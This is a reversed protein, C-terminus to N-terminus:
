AIGHDRVVFKDHFINKNTDAKMQVNQTNQFEEFTALNDSGPKLNPKKEVILRVKVGRSAARKIPDKIPNKQSIRGARLEQVAMDLATQSEDIFRVIERELVFNKASMNTHTSVYVEIKGNEFSAAFAYGSVFVVFLCILLIKKM